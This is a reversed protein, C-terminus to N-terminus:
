LVLDVMRRSFRILSAYPKGSEIVFGVRKGHVIRKVFLSRESYIIGM